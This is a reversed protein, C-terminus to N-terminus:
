RASTQGFDIGEGPELVEVRVDPAQESALRAFELPPESLRDGWRRRLGVPFYTGWHIPVALRPRLLPLVGAAEAPDLHGEGLTPGWGWVPMLALDLPGLDSMGPFPETDGAFYARTGASEFVFGVPQARAGLPTRRPDHLATVASITLEGVEVRDGPSMGRVESAGARRVLRESGSPVIVLRGRAVRRISRLDLHDHHLHSVAIADVSELLTPDPGPVQRRIPGIWRSLLPDTLVTTGGLEVRATAHGLYDLRGASTDRGTRDMRTTAEGSTYAM